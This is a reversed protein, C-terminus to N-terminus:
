TLLATNCQVAALYYPKDGKVRVYLGKFVTDRATRFVFDADSAKNYVHVEERDNYILVVKAEPVPIVPM